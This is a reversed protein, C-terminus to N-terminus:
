RDALTWLLTVAIWILTCVIAVKVALGALPKFRAYKEPLREAVMCAVVESTEWVLAGLTFVVNTLPKVLSPLRVKQGRMLQFAAVLLAPGLFVAMLFFVIASVATQFM